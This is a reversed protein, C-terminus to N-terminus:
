AAQAGAAAPTERKAIHAKEVKIKVNAGLDLVVCQDEVQSIRGLIGGTTVVNDGKKLSGLLAQTERLKKEQPRLVMFYFILFVVALMPFMQGLVQSFGPPQPAPQVVGQAFAAGGFLGSILLFLSTTYLKM